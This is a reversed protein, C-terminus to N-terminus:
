RDVTVKAVSRKWTLTPAATTREAGVVPRRDRAVALVQPGRAETVPLRIRLLQESEEFGESGGIEREPAPRRDLIPRADADVRLTTGLAVLQGEAEDGAV